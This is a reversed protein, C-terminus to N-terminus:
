SIVPGYKELATTIETVAADLGGAEHLRRSWDAAHFRFRPESLLRSLKAAIDQGDPARPDAIALGAGSETVRVGNDANDMWFPMVLQPQGFYLSEQVNNCGGHNFFAQVHPHALVALQSPVWSEIRLNPPLRDPLLHRRSQPLKWLMHHEPGLRAAADVIATIQKPTLRMVTGFATYVVSEREALWRDLDTDAAAAGTAGADRPLIAGVMKLNDPIGPFPQEYGAAFYALVAVADDAYKSPLSAPNSLGEAKRTNFFEMNARLHKPHFGIALSGLRFVANRAQQRASMQRPLGSLPTPYRWPLRGTYVQSITGVFVAIYPVGRMALADIAWSAMLDVVALVPRVEDVIELARLYEQRRSDHDFCLDQVAVFNRLPSKGTMARVTEDSWNDPDLAPNGPGLSAFQVSGGDSIAEIAAKHGDFSAFCIDGIDRAALETAITILPTVHGWGAESAFLIRPKTVLYERAPHPVM